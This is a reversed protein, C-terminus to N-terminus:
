RMLVISLLAGLGIFQIICFGLLWKLLAHAKKNEENVIYKIKEPLEDNLSNIDKEVSKKIDDVSHEIEKNNEILFWLLSPFIDHESANDDELNKISPSIKEELIKLINDKNM